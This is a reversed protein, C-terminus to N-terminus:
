RAAGPDEISHIGLAERFIAVLAESTPAAAGRYGADEPWARSGGHAVNKVAVFVELRESADLRAACRAVWDRLVAPNRLQEALSAVSAIAEDPDIGQRKAFAGIATREAPTITGDAIVALALVAAKVRAQEERLAAELGGRGFLQAVAARLDRVYAVGSSGVIAGLAVLGPIAYGAADVTSAFDDDSRSMRTM